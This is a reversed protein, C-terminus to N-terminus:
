YDAKQFQSDRLLDFSETTYYRSYPRIVQWLLGSYTFCPSPDPAWIAISEMGFSITRERYILSRLAMLAVVAIITLPSKSKPGM